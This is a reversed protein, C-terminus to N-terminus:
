FNSLVARVEQVWESAVASVALGAVENEAVMDEQGPCVTQEGWSHVREGHLQKKDSMLDLSSFLFRRPQFFEKEPIPRHPDPLNSTPCHMHPFLCTRPWSFLSFPCNLNASLIEWLQLKCCSSTPKPFMAWHLLTPPNESRVVSWQEGWLCNAQSMSPKMDLVPVYELVIFIM